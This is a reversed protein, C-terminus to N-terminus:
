LVNKKQKKYNGMRRRCLKGCYISSSYKVTFEKGCTPCKKNFLWENEQRKHERLDRMSKRHKEIDYYRHPDNELRKKRLAKNRELKEPFIIFRVAQPDVEYKRAITRTAWGCDHLRCIEDKDASSLKRRKDNKVRISDLIHM